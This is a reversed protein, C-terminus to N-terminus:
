EDRISKPVPLEVQSLTAGGIAESELDCHSLPMKAVAIPLPSCEVGVQATESTAGQGEDM